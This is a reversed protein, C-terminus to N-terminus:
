EFFIIKTKKITRGDIKEFDNLDYECHGLGVFKVINLKKDIEFIKGEFGKPVCSPLNLSQSKRKARLYKGIKM